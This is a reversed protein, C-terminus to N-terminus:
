LRHAPDDERGERGKGEQEAADVRHRGGGVAEPDEEPEFTNADESMGLGVGEKSLEEPAEAEDERGTM